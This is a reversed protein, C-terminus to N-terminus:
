TASPASRLQHERAFELLDPLRAMTGDEKLDRLDGGSARLRGTARFRLRGRYARCTGARRREAGDPSLHPRAPRHRRFHREEGRRGAGHALPGARSATTVGEAAEISVTFATGHPTKNDRVMLPLDLQRCRAESLTLCILGRGYKAM